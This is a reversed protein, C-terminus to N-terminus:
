AQGHSREKVAQEFSYLAKRAALLPWRVDEPEHVLWANRGFPFNGAMRRGHDGCIVISLDIGTRYWPDTQRGCLACPVFREAERRNEELDREYDCRRREDRVALYADIRAYREAQRAVDARLRVWPQRPLMGPSM